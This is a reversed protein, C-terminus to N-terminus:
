KKVIKMKKGSIYNISDPNVVCNADYTVIQGWVANRNGHIRGQRAEHSIVPLANFFGGVFKYRGEFPDYALFLRHIAQWENGSQDTFTYPEIEPQVIYPGRKRLNNKLDQMIRRRKKRPLEGAPKRIHGYGGYHLFLPKFRAPISSERVFSEAEEANVVLPTRMGLLYEKTDNVIPIYIKDEGDSTVSVLAFRYDRDRVMVSEGSYLSRIFWNVIKPDDVNPTVAIKRIKQRLDDNELIPINFPTNEAPNRLWSTPYSTRMYLIIDSSSPSKLIRQLNEPGVFNDFGSLSRVHAHDLEKYANLNAIGFESRLMAEEKERTVASLIIHPKNYYRRYMELASDFNVGLFSEHPSFRDEANSAFLGRMMNYMALSNEAEFMQKLIIVALKKPPINSAEELFELPFGRLDVQVLLNKFEGNIYAMPYSDPQRLQLVRQFERNYKHLVLNVAEIMEPPYEVYNPFRYFEMKNGESDIAPITKVTEVRGVDVTESNFQFEQNDGRCLSKNELYKGFRYQREITKM